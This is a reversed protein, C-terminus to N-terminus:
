AKKGRKQFWDLADLIQKDEWWDMIEKTAARDKWFVPGLYDHWQWSSIAVMM